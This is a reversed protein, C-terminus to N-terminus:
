ARAEGLLRGVAGLWEAAPIPQGPEPKRITEDAGIHRAIEMYPDRLMASTAIIRIPSPKRRTIAGIVEFGSLKPLALDVILLGIERYQSDLTRLASAGDLACVCEYGAENLLTSLSHLFLADDDVVLIRRSM